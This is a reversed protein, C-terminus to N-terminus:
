FNLLEFKCYVYRLEQVKVLLEIYDVAQQVEVPESKLSQLHDREARLYCEYDAAMTKLRAELAALQQSETAIKDLAQRYNQFIFNGIQSFSCLARSLGFLCVQRRTSIRIMFHLINTLTNSETIHLPWALSLRWSMQSELPGSASKLIRLVLVKLICRIGTCSAPGTIHMVMSHHSLETFVFCLKRLGLFAARFHKSSRVCSIMASASIQAM